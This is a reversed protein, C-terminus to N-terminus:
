AARGPVPGSVPAPVNQFPERMRLTGDERQQRRLFRLVAKSFVMPVEEFPLHGAGPIVMMESRDFYKRLTYGSDLSVARDQTGWLLLAPVFRLLNLVSELDHMDHFWGDLIRLLHDVTGPVALSAMYSEIDGERMREPDGYMRGLALSQMAPPLKLIRHAFWKGLASRYFHILPDAIKSFPNAPAHLVLSRVRQPYRAACMMAVAGGHSSGCLDAAAIGVADMFAIVRDATATLSADLGYVRESEGLGLADFAYVTCEPALIEMSRCWNEATGLLGHLLLLEPGSGARLYHMGHGGAFVMGREVSLNEPNTLMWKTLVMSRKRGASGAAVRRGDKDMRLNSAAFLKRSADTAYRLM